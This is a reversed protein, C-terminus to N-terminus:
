LFLIQVAPQLFRLRTQDFASHAAHGHGGENVMAAMFGAAMEM